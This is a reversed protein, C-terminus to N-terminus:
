DHWTYVCKYIGRTCALGAATPLPHPIIFPMIGLGCAQAPTTTRVSLNKLHLKSRGWFLVKPRGTDRNHPSPTAITDQYHGSPTGITDRHHGSPTGLTHRPHPSPTAILYCTIEVICFIHVASTERSLRSDSPATEGSWTRLFLTRLHCSPPRSCCRLGM